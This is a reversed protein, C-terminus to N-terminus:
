VDHKIVANAKATIFLTFSLGESPSLAQVVSLDM